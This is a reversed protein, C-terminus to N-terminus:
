RRSHTGRPPTGAALVLRLQDGDGPRVVKDGDAFFTCSSPLREHDAAPGIAFYAQVKVSPWVALPAVSDLPGVRLRADVALDQSTVSRSPRM